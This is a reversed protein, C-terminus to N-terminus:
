NLRSRKSAGQLEPVLSVLIAVLAGVAILFIIATVFWGLIPIWSLVFIILPGIVGAKWDLLYEHKERNNWWSMVWWGVFIDAIIMSIILILLYAFFSAIGLLFLILLILSALPALLFYAFGIGLSKWPAQRMETLVTLVGRRFFYLTLISLIIGVFLQYFSGGTIAQASQKQQQKEVRHFTTQGIVMSGSEQTAPQQSSYTLNGNIKAQPGLILKGLHGATVNGAVSNNLTVNGGSMLIKGQVPGELDLQGGAVLVDGGIQANKTVTVNGGAVVLDHAVPGDITINGGAIRATNGVKGHVTITGGAALLDNSINGSLNINGGATVVDNTVPSNLLITGGFLYLDKLNNQNGSLIVTDGTRIDAAHAPQQSTILLLAFVATITGLLRKM